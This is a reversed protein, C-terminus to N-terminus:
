RSQDRGGIRPAQAQKRETAAERKPPPQDSMKTDKSPKETALQEQNQVVIEIPPMSTPDAEKQVKEHAEEM